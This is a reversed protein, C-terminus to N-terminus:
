QLKAGIQGIADDIAPDGKGGTLRAALVQETARAALDIAASKVQAVAELQATEIRREALRTRQAVTEELDAKAQAELRKAQDNAAAIVAKAQAEADARQRSIDALLAEAEARIRAADDLNAKIAGAKADLGAAAAKFGGMMGAVLLFVIFGVGVWLEPNALNWFEAEFFAPM